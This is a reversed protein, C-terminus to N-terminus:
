CTDRYSGAPRPRSILNGRALRQIYRTAKGPTIRAASWGM